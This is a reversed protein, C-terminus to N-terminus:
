QIDLYSRLKELFARLDNMVEDENVEFEAPAEVTNNSEIGNKYDQITKFNFNVVGGSLIAIRASNYQSFLNSNFFVFLILFKCIIINKNM